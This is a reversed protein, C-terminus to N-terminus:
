RIVDQGLQFEQIVSPFAEVVQAFTAKGGPTLLSSLKAKSDKSSDFKAQCQDNPLMVFACFDTFTWSQLLKERSFRLPDPDAPSLGLKAVAAQHTQNFGNIFANIQVQNGYLGQVLFADNPDDNYTNKIDDVVPRLGKSHCGACSTYNVIDKNQLHTEFDIVLNEPGVNARQQAGNWLAGEIMGNDMLCLSESGDPVYQHAGVIILPSKNLNKNDANNDFVDFTISCKDNASNFMVVLRNSDSIATDTTGAMLIKGVPPTLNAVQAKIDGSINAGIQAQYLTLSAPIKKIAYYATPEMAFESLVDSHLFPEATGTKAIIDRGIASGAIPFHFPEANVIQNWDAASLGYASLSIKCISDDILQCKIIDDRNPGSHALSNLTKNVAGWFLKLDQPSTAVNTKHNAFAFRIDAPDGENDLATNALRLETDLTKFGTANSGACDTATQPEGLAVWDKLNQIDQASPETYGLDNSKPMHLNPDSTTIRDVMTPAYTKVNAYQTFEAHCSPGCSTSILKQIQPVYSVACPGGGSPQTQPSDGPPTAGGSATPAQNSGCSQFILLGASSLFCILCVALVMKHFITMESYIALRKKLNDISM